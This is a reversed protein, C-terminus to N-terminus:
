HMNIIDYFYFNMKKIIKIFYEYLYRITKDRRMARYSHKYKELLNYNFIANM